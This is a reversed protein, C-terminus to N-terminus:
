SLFGTWRLQALRNVSIEVITLKPTKSMGSLNM